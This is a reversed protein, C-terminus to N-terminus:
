QTKWRREPDLVLTIYHQCDNGKVRQNSQRSNFHIGESITGLQIYFPPWSSDGAMPSILSASAGSGVM